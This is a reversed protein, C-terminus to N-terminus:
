HVRSCRGWRLEAEMDLFMRQLKRERKTAGPAALAAAAEGSAGSPEAAAVCSPACCPHLMLPLCANLFLVCPVFHSRSCASLGAAGM